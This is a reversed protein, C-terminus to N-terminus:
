VIYQLIDTRKRGDLYLRPIRKNLGCITEYPISGIPDSLETVSIDGGFIKVVDGVKAEPVNTVDIMCMDMCIRGVVPVRQGHLQFRIRGSLSRSLGDAYGICVVAITCPAQTTYTLGYSVGVGAPFEKIQSITSYLSLVPKLDLRGELEPAPAIGYTAVGPRVMDMAYEPYLITAGSNCCHCIEPRRGADEMAKTMTRFTEFQARTFAKDQPAISDAVAFHTFMGEVELHPLETIKLLQDLTDPANAFFGLRSMGTDLKLHVKLRSGSGQLRKELQLAYELSSVEQRVDMDAMDVAYTPPTYGLILIPIQLDGRRLQVAEELNSVALFGAGLEELHRGVPVAGHGYGDAKVVGLFRCRGPLQATLVNYNHTLNDLSVDAWTRKLLKM